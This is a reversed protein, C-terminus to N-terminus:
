SPSAEKLVRKLARIPEMEEPDVGYLAALYLSLFDGFYTLSLIKECLTAGPATVEYVSAYPQLYDRMFKARLRMRDSELGGGLFVVGWRSVGQRSSLVWGLIENHNLEPFAHSFAMVKANENLQGKWREAVAGQWSGLGYFLPVAGLLERALSKAPNDSARVSSGWRALCDRLTELVSDWSIAPLLGLRVSLVVLPLFLYGLATRPPQGGPIKVVPFGQSLALRELEGGSTVAIVWCGRRISESVASLTEETDGSYSCAFVLSQRGVFNPLGYDRVVICPVSGADEYLSRLYVGGIGSGGMGAVVVSTGEPFPAPLSVREAISIAEECQAPFAEVLRLMGKPDCRLLFSLDDLVEGV